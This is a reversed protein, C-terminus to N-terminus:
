EKDQVRSLADAARNEAGRRYHIKYDLGLLKTIWKQQIPSM